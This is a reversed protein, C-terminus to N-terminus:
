VWRGCGSRGWGVFISLGGLCVLVLAEDTSTSRFVSDSSAFLEEESVTEPPKLADSLLLFSFVTGQTKLHVGLEAAANALTVKFSVTTRCLTFM